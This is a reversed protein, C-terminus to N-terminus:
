IEWHLDDLSLVKLRFCKCPDCDINFLGAEIQLKMPIKKVFAM